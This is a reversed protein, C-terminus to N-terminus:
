FLPQHPAPPFGRVCFREAFRLLAIQPLDRVSFSRAQSLRNTHARRPVHDFFLSSTEGAASNALLSASRNLGDSSTLQSSWDVSRLHETGPHPKVSQGQITKTGEDLASHRVRLAHPSAADQAAQCPQLRRHVASPAASVSRSRRLPLTQRSFSCCRQEAKITRNM